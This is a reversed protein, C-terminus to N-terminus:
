HAPGTQERDGQVTARSVDLADAFRELLNGSGRHRLAEWMALRERWAPPVKDLMTMSKM